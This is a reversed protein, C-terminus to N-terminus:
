TILDLRIGPHPPTVYTPSSFCICPKPLSIQLSSVVQLFYLPSSLISFSRLFSTFHVPHYPCTAPQQSLAPCKMIPQPVTLKELLVRSRPTLPHPLEGDQGGRALFTVFYALKPTPGDYLSVTQLREQVAATPEFVKVPTYTIYFNLYPYLEPLNFSGSNRSLWCMFTTHNDAKRVPPRQGRLHRQYENSSSDAPLNLGICFGM